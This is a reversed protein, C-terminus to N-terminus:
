VCVCVCVCECVCVSVCVCVCVCVCVIVYQDTKQRSITSTIYQFMDGTELKAQYGTKQVAERWGINHMFQHFWANRSLVPHRSIRVLFLQLSTTYHYSHPINSYNDRERERERKGEGRREKSHGPTSAMQLYYKVELAQM